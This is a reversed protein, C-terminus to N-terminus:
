VLTISLGKPLNLPLTMETKPMNVNDDGEAKLEEKSNLDICNGEQLSMQYTLRKRLKNTNNSDTTLAATLVETVTAEFNLVIEDDALPRSWRQKAKTPSMIQPLHQEVMMTSKHDNNSKIISERSLTTGIRRLMAIVKGDVLPKRLYTKHSETCKVYDQQHRAQLANNVLNQSKSSKMYDNAKCKFCKVVAAIKQKLFKNNIKRKESALLLLARGCSCRLRLQTSYTRHTLRRLRPQPKKFTLKSKPKSNKLNHQINSIITTNNHEEGTISGKHCTTPVRRIPRCIAIPRKVNNDDDDDTQLKTQMVSNNGSNLGARFTGGSSSDAENSNLAQLSHWNILWNNCSFCLYKDENLPQFKFKAQILQVINPGSRPEYINITQNTHCGCILCTRKLYESSNESM